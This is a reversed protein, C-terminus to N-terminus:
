RKADEQRASRRLFQQAVVPLWDACWAAMAEEEALSARCLHALDSDGVCEAAAILCRYSAIELHEFHYSALALKVIEDSAMSAGLGQMGAAMRGSLDKMLSTDGGREEICQKLRDAQGRTEALHRDIRQKFEPYHEIRASTATLMQIAQQEMGHADRLWDLLHAKADELDGGFRQAALLPAAPDHPAVDPGSPDSQMPM